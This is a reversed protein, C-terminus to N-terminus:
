KFVEDFTHVGTKGNIFEAALIAGQAFGRRGHASHSLTISDANSDFVVQHFGPNRGGRLSMLHLEDKEIQRQLMESVIKKKSPFNELIEKGIRLNTGSPSDKKGSHHIDFGFVDYDEFKGIIKSAYAVIQFFLNAGVSFNSSYILGIGSDKVIKEVEHLSDLWGTTAIVMNKGLSAVTRINDIVVESHTCDIVVDAERLVETDINEGAHQMQISVVSDSGSEAIVREIESGM